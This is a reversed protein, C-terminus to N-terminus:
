CGVYISGTGFVGELHLPSGSLFDVIVHAVGVYSAPLCVADDRSLGVIFPTGVASDPGRAAFGSWGETSVQRYIYLYMTVNRIAGDCIVSVGFYMQEPSTRRPGSGSVTCIVQIGMDGPKAVSLSIPEGSGKLGETLLVLDAQKGEGEPAAIATGTGGLLTLVTITVALVAKALRQQQRM